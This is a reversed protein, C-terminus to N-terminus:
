NAGDNFPVSFWMHFNNLLLHCLAIKEFLTVMSYYQNKQSKQNRCRNSKSISKSKQYRIMFRINRKCQIKRKGSDNIPYFQTLDGEKWNLASDNVKSIGLLVAEQVVEIQEIIQSSTSPVEDNVVCYVSHMHKRIFCTKWFCYQCINSEYPADSM